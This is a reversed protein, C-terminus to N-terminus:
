QVDETAKEPAKIRVYDKKSCADRLAKAFELHLAHDANYAVIHGIPLGQSGDSSLLALDGQM